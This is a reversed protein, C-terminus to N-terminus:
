DVIWRLSAWVLGLGAVLGFATAILMDTWSMEDHREPAPPTLPYLTIDDDM